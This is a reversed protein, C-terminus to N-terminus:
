GVSLIMLLLESHCNVISFIGKGRLRLQTTLSNM